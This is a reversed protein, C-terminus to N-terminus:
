TGSRTVPTVLTKQTANNSQFVEAAKKDLYVIESPALQVTGIIANAVVDSHTILADVTDINRIRVCKASSVTSNSSLAVTSGLIRFSGVM